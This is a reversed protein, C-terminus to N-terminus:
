SQTIICQIELNMLIWVYIKILCRANPDMHIVHDANAM